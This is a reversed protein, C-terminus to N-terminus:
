ASKRSLHNDGESLFKKILEELKKGISKGEAKCKEVFAVLVSNKVECALLEKDTSM